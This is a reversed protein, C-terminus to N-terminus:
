LQKEKKIANSLIMNSVNKRLKKEHVYKCKLFSKFTAPWQELLALDADTLTLRYTRVYNNVTQLWASSM